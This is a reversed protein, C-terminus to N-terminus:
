PPDDPEEDPPLLNGKQELLQKYVRLFHREAESAIGSVQPQCECSVRGTRLDQAFACTGPCEPLAGDEYMSLQVGSAEKLASACAPLAQELQEWPLEHQTNEGRDTPSFTLGMRCPSSIKGQPSVFDLHLRGGEPLTRWVTGTAILAAKTKEFQLEFCSEEDVRGNRDCREHAGSALVRPRQLLLVNAAVDIVADYRGWLDCGLLGAARREGNQDSVGRLAGEHVGVGPALELADFNIGKFSQLEPPIQMGDPLEIGELLEFGSRLGASRAADDSIESQQEGTSLVFAGVLEAGAQNVRVPLLPWDTRPDRTLDLLHSEFGQRGAAPALALARWHEASQSKGFSLTRRAVDVTMAWPMLQDNGLTVICHDDHSMGAPFSRYRHKGFTLGRVEVESVTDAAGTFRPVHVTDGTPPAEEFCGSTIRSMPSAVEFVVEARVNELHGDVSLKLGPNSKLPLSLGELDGSGRHSGLGRGACAVLLLLPAARLM